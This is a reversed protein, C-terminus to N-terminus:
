EWIFRLSDILNGLILFRVKRVDFYYIPFYFAFLLFALLM